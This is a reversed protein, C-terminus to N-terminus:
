VFATQQCDAHILEMTRAMSVDRPDTEHVWMWMCGRDRIDDEWTGYWGAGHRKLLHVTYSSSRHTYSTTFSIAALSEKWESITSRGGLDFFAGENKGLVIGNFSHNIEAPLLIASVPEGDRWLFGTLIKM